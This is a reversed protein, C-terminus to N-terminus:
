RGSSVPAGTSEGGGSAAGVPAPSVPSANPGAVAAGLTEKRPLGPHLNRQQEDDHGRRECPHVKILAFVAERFQTQVRRSEHAPQGDDEDPERQGDQATLSPAESETCRGGSEAQNNRQMHNVRVRGDHTGIQRM